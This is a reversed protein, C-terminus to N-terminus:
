LDVEIPINKEISETLTFFQFCHSACCQAIFIIINPVCSIKAHSLKMLIGFIASPKIPFEHLLLTVKFTCLNSQKNQHCGVGM